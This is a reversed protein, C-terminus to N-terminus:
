IDLDIMREIKEMDGFNDFASGDGEGSSKVKKQKSIMAKFFEQPRNAAWKLTNVAKKSPAPGNPSDTIDEMTIVVVDQAALNNDIKRTLAPHSSVWDNEASPEGTNPLARYAMDYDLRKQDDIIEQKEANRKQKAHANLQNLVKEIIYKREEHPSKYGMARMAETSAGGSASGHTVRAAELAAEWEKMRGEERMRAVFMNQASRPRDGMMLSERCLRVVAPDHGLLVDAFHKLVDPRKHATM